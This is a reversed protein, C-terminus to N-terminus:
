CAGSSTWPSRHHCRLSAAPAPRGGARGRNPPFPAARALLSLVYRRLSRSLWCRPRWPARTAAIPDRPRPFSRCPLRCCSSSCRPWCGPVPRCAAHVVSARRAAAVLCRPSTTLTDSPASPPAPSSSPSPCQSASSSTRRARPRSTANPPPPPSPSPPPPPAAALL